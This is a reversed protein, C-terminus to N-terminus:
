TDRSEEWHQVPVHWLVWARGATTQPGHHPQRSDCLQWTEDVADWPAQLAEGTQVPFHKPIIKPHCINNSYKIKSVGSSFNLM